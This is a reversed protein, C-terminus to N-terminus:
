SMGPTKKYKQVNSNNSRSTLKDISGQETRPQDVIINYYLASKGIVTQSRWGPLLLDSLIGARDNAASM